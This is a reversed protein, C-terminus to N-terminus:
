SLSPTGVFVAFNAQFDGHLKILLSGLYINSLVFSSIVSLVDFEFQKFPVTSLILVLWLSSMLLAVLIRMTVASERIVLLAGTLVIRRALDLAEWYFYQSRSAYCLQNVRASTTETTM